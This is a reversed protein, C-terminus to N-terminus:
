FDGVREAAEGLESSFYELQKNLKKVQVSCMGHHNGGVEL